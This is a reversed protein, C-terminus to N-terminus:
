PPVLAASALAPASFCSGGSTGTHRSHATHSPAGRAPSVTGRSLRARPRGGEGGGQMCQVSCCAAADRRTMDDSRSRRRRAGNSLPRAGPRVAAPRATHTGHGHSGDRPGASRACWRGAVVSWLLRVHRATTSSSHTAAPKRHGGGSRSDPRATCRGVAAARRLLCGPAGATPAPVIGGHTGRVPRRHQPRSSPKVAGLRGPGM